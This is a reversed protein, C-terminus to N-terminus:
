PVQNLGRVLTLLEHLFGSVPGGATNPDYKGPTISPEGGNFRPDAVFAAGTFEFVRIEYRHPCFHCEGEETGYTPDIETGYVPNIELIETRGDDDVDATAYEGIESVSRHADIVMGYSGAAPDFQLVALPRYASPWWYQEVWVLLIETLGDGDLDETDVVLAEFFGPLLEEPVSSRCSFDAQLSAEPSEEVPPEAYVYVDGPITFEAIQDAGRAGIGVITEGVGDGNLDVAITFTRDGGFEGSQSSEVPVPEGIGAPKEGGDTAAAFLRSSSLAQEIEVRCSDADSAAYYESFATWAEEGRGSYLYALVLPLVRCRGAPDQEELAEGLGAQAKARFGPIDVDYIEPFEAGAPVYGREGAYRLVVTPLPSSACSCFVCRFADDCAIVEFIGDGDLDRFSAGCPTDLPLDISTLEAGLNLVVYSLCCSAGGSYREVVVDPDGEGTIDQAPMPVLRNVWDATWIIGNSDRVQVMSHGQAWRVPTEWVEIVYGSIELKDALRSGLPISLRRSAADGGTPTGTPTTIVRVGEVVEPNSTTSDPHRPPPALYVFAAAAALCAFLVVVWRCWGLRRRTM